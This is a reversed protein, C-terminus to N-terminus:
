RTSGAALSALEALNYSAFDQQSRLSVATRLLVDLVVLNEHAHADLAAPELRLHYVRGHEAAHIMESQFRQVRLRELKGARPDYARLERSTPVALLGGQPRALIRAGDPVVLSYDDATQWAARLQRGLGTLSPAHVLGPRRARYAVLGHQGALRPWRRAYVDDVFGLSRPPWGAARADAVTSGLEIAFRGPEGLLGRGDVRVGVDQDPRAAIAELLAAARPQGGDRVFAAEPLFWSAHLKREGLMELLSALVGAPSGLAGVGVDISLVLAGSGSMPGSM